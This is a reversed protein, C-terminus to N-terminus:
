WQWSVKGSEENIKIRKKIFAILTLEFVIIIAIIGFTKDFSAFVYWAGSFFYVYSLIQIRKWNKELLKVSFINSTLLLIFGTLEGLHAWFINGKFSWYAFSFYETMFQSFGMHFYHILGFSVVIISSFIGLPKRLPMLKYLKLSPFINNLPRISMLIFVAYLSLDWLFNKTGPFFIALFVVIISLYNIGSKIINILSM